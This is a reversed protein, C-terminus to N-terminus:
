KKSIIESSAAKYLINPLFKYLPNEMSKVWRLNIEIM